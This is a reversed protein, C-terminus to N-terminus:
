KGLLLTRKTAREKRSQRIQVDILGRDGNFMVKVYDITELATLGFESQFAREKRTSRNINKLAPILSDTGGLSAIVDANESLIRVAKEIVEYLKQEQSSTRNGNKPLKMQQHPYHTDGRKGKRSLAQKLQQAGDSDLLKKSIEMISTLQIPTFQSVTDLLHHAARDAIVKCLSKSSMVLQLYENEDLTIPTGQKDFGWFVPISRRVIKIADELEIGRRDALDIACELLFKQLKDDRQSDFSASIIFALKGSIDPTFARSMKQATVGEDGADYALVVVDIEPLSFSRSGMGSSLILLQKGERQAQHWWKNAQSRAKANTTVDGNLAKVLVTPLANSLVDVARKMNVKTTSGPCFVMTIRPFGPACGFRSFHMCDLPSGYYLSHFLGTLQSAGKPPDAFVRTWSSGQTDPIEVQLLRVDPWGSLDDLRKWPYKLSITPYYNSPNKKEVLLDFYTLGSYHFSQFANWLTVARDGNSGTALVICRSKGNDIWELLEKQKPKWAGFDAEDVFIWKSRCQRLPAYYKKNKISHTLPTLVVIKNGTALASKFKAPFESSRVDDANFLIWDSFQTWNRIETEFSDFVTHVYAPIILVQEEMELHVALAWPTKGFRAFLEELFIHTGRELSTFFDNLQFLQLATLELERRGYNIGRISQLAKRVLLGPNNDPFRTWEKRKGASEVRITGFEQEM